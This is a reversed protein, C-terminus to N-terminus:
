TRPTRLKCTSSCYDTNPPDCEENVEVNSNGCCRLLEEKDFDYVCDYGCASHCM